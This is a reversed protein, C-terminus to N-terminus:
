HAARLAVVPELRAARRAPLMAGLVTVLGVLVVSALVQPASVAFSPHGNQLMLFAPTQPTFRALRVLGMIVASAILGSVAGGLFLFFAEMLFLRRVRRRQMGLARM